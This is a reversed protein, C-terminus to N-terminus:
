RTEFLYLYRPALFNKLIFFIVYFFILQIVMEINIYPFTCTLKKREYWEWVGRPASISSFPVELNAWRFEISYKEKRDPYGEGYLVEAILTWDKNTNKASYKSITNSDINDSVLKPKDNEYVVASLLVRGKWMSGLAPFQNMRNCNERNGDPQSGYINM